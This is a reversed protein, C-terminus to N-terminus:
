IILKVCKLTRAIYMNWFTMVRITSWFDNMENTMSMNYCMVEAKMSRNISKTHCKLQPFIWWLDWKLILLSAASAHNRTTNEIYMIKEEEEYKMQNEHKVISM